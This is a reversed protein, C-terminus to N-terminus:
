HSGSPAPEVSLRDMITELRELDDEDLRAVFHEAIGALHTPVAALLQERGAPTLTAHAGRRDDSCVRRTVWGVDQLRDVRRTLGSRSLLVRDALESMRLEGGARELQILVDFDAIGIGAADDLEADLRRLLTAHARLFARWARIRRDTPAPFTAQVL